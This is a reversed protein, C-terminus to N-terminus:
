VSESGETWKFFMEGDSTQSRQLAHDTYQQHLLTLSEAIGQGYKPPTFGNLLYLLSVSFVAWVNQTVGASVIRHTALQQTLPEM